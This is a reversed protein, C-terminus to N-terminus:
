VDFVVTATLGTSSRVIELNHYTVAKIHKTLQNVPTGYIKARLHNPSVREIKFEHFILMEIEAWYALESLWDVLLGEMDLAELEIFKEQRLPGSIQNSVLISNLGRAANLLLEELDNGYIRLARDGTHDIEEFVCQHQPGASDIPRTTTM